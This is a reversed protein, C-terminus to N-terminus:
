NNKAIGIGIFVQMTETNSQLGVEKEAMPAWCHDEDEKAEEEGSVSGDEEEEDSGSGRNGMGVRKVRVLVLVLVVKGLGNLSADICGPLPVDYFPLNHLLM